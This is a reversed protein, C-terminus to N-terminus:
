SAASGDCAHLCGITLGKITYASFTYVYATMLLITPIPSFYPIVSTENLDKHDNSTDESGDFGISRLVLM